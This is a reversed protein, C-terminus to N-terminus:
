EKSLYRLQLLDGVEKIAKLAMEIDEMTHAASLCFRARPETLPTAPYGVVVVAIGRDLMQVSFPALKNMHYILVPVVCSSADGLVVFGMEKLGSRFRNTVAVLNRLRCLGDTTNEGMVMKMSASIQALVPISMPEAYVSSHNYLRVRNILEVSGSIYGGAASFAKTFTGMLVDVQRPNIGYHDCVGRGTSGVAGISHAEDVYLYFKYRKKLELIAPLPCMTGEMSYLGEVVVLIKKWPVYRGADPTQGRCIADRLVAELSSVSNHKFTQISAGSIRCGYVISAHNLADSVVLCGAEVLAALTTSNTAFGNSFVIADEQGIFRAVLREVDRHLDLSGVEMRPSSEATVGYQCVIDSVHDSVPGTSQAFGLYNYSSLNLAKTVRGTVKFTDYNTCTRELLSVYPGPVSTIPRNFCQKIYRYLHKRFFTEFGDVIPAHSSTANPPALLSQISARIYGVLVIVTFSLYTTIHVWLPTGLVPALHVKSPHIPGPDGAASVCPVEHPLGQIYNVAFAGKGMPALNNGVRSHIRISLSIRVHKKLKPSTFDVEQIQTSGGDNLDRAETVADGNENRYNKSVLKGWWPHTESREQGDFRYTDTQGQVDIVTLVDPHLSQSMDFTVTVLKSLQRLIFSMGQAALVDQYPTTAASDEVWFGSYDTLPM